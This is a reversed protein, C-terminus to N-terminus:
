SDNKKLGDVSNIVADMDAIAADKSKGGRLSTTYTSAASYLGRSSGAVRKDFQVSTDLDFGYKAADQIADADAALFVFEWGDTKLEEILTEVSKKNWEKSNNEAGDTVIVAIRQGTTKVDRFKNMNIGIADLLSTMGRPVLKYTPAYTIPIRNYVPENIVDDFECLTINAEGNEKQETIFSNVGGEADDRITGMSGSRDVILVIEDVNDLPTLKSLDQVVADRQGSKNKDGFFHDFIDNDNNAM